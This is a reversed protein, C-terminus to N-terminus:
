RDERRVLEDWDIGHSPAQARTLYPLAPTIPRLRDGFRGLAAFPEKSMGWEATKFLLVAAFFPLIFRTASKM